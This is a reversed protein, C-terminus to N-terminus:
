NKLTKREGNKTFVGNNGQGFVNANTIGDGYGIKKNFNEYCLWYDDFSLRRYLPEKVIVDLVVM